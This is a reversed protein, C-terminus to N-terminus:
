PIILRYRMLVNLHHESLAVGEAGSGYGAYLVLYGVAVDTGVAIGVAYVGSLVLHVAHHLATCSNLLSGALMGAAYDYHWLFVIYHLEGRHLVRRVAALAIGYGGVEVKVSHVVPQYLQIYQAVIIRRHKSHQLINGAQVGLCYGKVVRFGHLYEAGALRQAHRQVLQVAVHAAYCYGLETGGEHPLHELVCARSCHLFQEPYGAKGVTGVYPQAVSLLQYQAAGRCQRLYYAGSVIYHVVKYESAAVRGHGEFGHLADALASAKGRLHLLMHTGYIRRLPEYVGAFLYLVHEGAGVCRGVDHHGESHGVVLHM